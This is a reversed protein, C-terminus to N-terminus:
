PCFADIDFLGRDELCDIKRKLRERAREQAAQRKVAPHIYHVKWVKAYEIDYARKWNLSRAKEGSISTVYVKAIYAQEGPRQLKGYATMSVSCISNRLREKGYINQYTNHMDTEMEAKTNGKFAVGVQYCDGHKQVNIARVWQEPVGFASRIERRVLVEVSPVPKPQPEPDPKAKTGAEKPPEADSEPVDSRAQTTADTNAPTATNREGGSYVALSYVSSLVVGLFLLVIIAL